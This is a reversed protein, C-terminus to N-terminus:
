MAARLIVDSRPEAGGLDDLAPHIVLVFAAGRRQSLAHIRQLEALTGAYAAADIPNEAAHRRRWVLRVGKRWLKWRVRLFNLLMSREVIGDATMRLQFSRYAEEDAVMQGDIIKLGHDEVPENAMLDNRYWGLVVVHPDLRDIQRELAVREHYTNYGPVSLNFVAVDLGRRALQAELLDPYAEGDRVGRGFGVSDGVVVVRLAASLRQPTEEPGRYALRNISTPMRDEYDVWEGRYGPILAWGLEADPAYIGPEYHRDPVVGSPRAIRVVMEGCLVVGLITALILLGWFGLKRRM